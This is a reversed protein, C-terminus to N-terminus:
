EDLYVHFAEVTRAYHAKDADLDARAEPTLALAAYAQPEHYYLYYHSALDIAQFHVMALDPHIVPLYHEAIAADFTDALYAQRLFFLRHHTEPDLGEAAVDSAILVHPSV